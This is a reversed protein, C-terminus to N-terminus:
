HIAVAAAGLHCGAVHLGSTYAPVNVTAAAIDLAQIGENLGSTASARATSGGPGAVVTTDGLWGSLLIVTDGANGATFAPTTWTQGGNTTFASSGDPAGSTYSVMAGAWDGSTGTWTYSAPESLATRWFVSFAHVTGTSSAATLKTWGTPTNITPTSSGTYDFIGAVLLYGNQVGAPVNLAVSAVPGLPVNTTAASFVPPGSAAVVGSKGYNNGSALYTPALVAAGSRRTFSM